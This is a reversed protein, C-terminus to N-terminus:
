SFFAELTDIKEAQWGVAKTIAVMPDLFVKDFQLEYDIYEELKFEPPLAGVFSIVNQRIPNPLKLYVMKVKDGSIIKQYKKDLGCETLYHNFLLCGRVHIPCTLGQKIITRSDYHKDIDNTGVTKAIEHAPMNFFETKFESIFDQVAAEDKSMIIGFLEEMKDRCIQPTAASVSQLGTVSVKPNDYHVGESNLTNMMYRKKAVFVSKDTIKERKMVMANRYAGTYAALKEYGKEIVDEIQESCIKDLFQEGKDRSIDTTGFVAEILPGFNVYISDTDIYVIYDVDKTKLIKNLYENVSKEAFRISLQGSTTIAEAMDGIFYLFYKNAVAGYLSNMMIKTSMQSNHLQTALKKKEKLLSELEADSMQQLNKM